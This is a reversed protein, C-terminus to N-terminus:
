NHDSYIKTSCYLTFNKIKFKQKWINVYQNVTNIHNEPSILHPYLHEETLFKTTFFQKNRLFGVKEKSSRFSIMSESSYGLKNLSKDSDNVIGILEAM